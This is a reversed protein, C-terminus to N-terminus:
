FIISRKPNKINQRTKRDETKSVAGRGTGAEPLTSGEEVEVGLTSGERVEEVVKEELGVMEVVEVTETELLEVGEIVLLEEPEEV